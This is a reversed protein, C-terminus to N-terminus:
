GGRSGAELERRLRLVIELGEDRTAVNAVFRWRVGESTLLKEDDDVLVPYPGAADLRLLVSPM